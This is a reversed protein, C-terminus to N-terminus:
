GSRMVGVHWAMKTLNILHHCNEEASINIDNINRRMLVSAQHKESQQATLWGGSQM